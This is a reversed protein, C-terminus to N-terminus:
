FYNPQHLSNTDRISGHAKPELSSRTTLFDRWWLTESSATFIQDTDASESYSGNYLSLYTYDIPFLFPTPSNHRMASNPKTSPKLM